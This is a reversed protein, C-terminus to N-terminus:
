VCVRILRQLSTCSKRDSMLALILRSNFRMKKRRWEPSIEFLHHQREKWYRHRLFISTYWTREIQCFVCPKIAEPICTCTAPPIQSYKERFSVCSPTIAENPSVSVGCRLRYFKLVNKEFRFSVCSTFNASHFSSPHRGFRRINIKTQLLVVVYTIGSSCVYSSVIKPLRCIRV